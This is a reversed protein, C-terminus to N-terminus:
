YHRIYAICIICDSVPQIYLEVVILSRRTLQKTNVDIYLNSFIYSALIKRIIHSNSFSWFIKKFSFIFSFFSFFSVCAIIPRYLPPTKVHALLFYTKQLIFQSLLKLLSFIAFKNVLVQLLLLRNPRIAM